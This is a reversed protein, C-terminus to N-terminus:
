PQHENHRAALDPIGTEYSRSLIERIRAQHDVPGPSKVPRPEVDFEAAEPFTVPSIPRFVGNEFRVRIVSM